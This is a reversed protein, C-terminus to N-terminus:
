LWEDVGGHYSCTGQRHESFSYTGDSCQATSGDPAADAAIPQHVCDGSSAQYYGVDCSGSSAYTAPEPDDDPSSAEDATTTEEAAEEGGSRQVPESLEDATAVDDPSAALPEQSSTTEARPSADYARTSPAGSEGSSQVGAYVVLAAGTLGLLWGM